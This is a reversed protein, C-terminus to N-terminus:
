RDKSDGDSVNQPSESLPPSGPKCMDEVTEYSVCFCLPACEISQVLRIGFSSFACLSEDLIYNLEM